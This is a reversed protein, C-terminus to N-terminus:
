DNDDPINLTTGCAKCHVADYEHRLLGCCPCPFRVKSPRLVAHALGFFLTVGFIMIVIALLRGSTGPLTVDGFGTTTLTTVTFYLADVYNNIHTNVGHQTEYVFGTIVFLFVAFNLIALIIDENRRFYGVDDRLQKLVHFSRFLRLTRLIRLFGGAEGALPVLFSAVVIAELWTLPNLLTRVPHSSIFIRTLFDALFIVGFVADLTEILATHPIFSTGVIYLITFLDFALLAYRFRRAKETYGEYYYRLYSKLGHRHPSPSATAQHESM